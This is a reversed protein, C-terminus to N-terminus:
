VRDLALEDLLNSVDKVREYESEQVLACNVTIQLMRVLSESNTNTVIKTKEMLSDDSPFFFLARLVIKNHASTRVDHYM